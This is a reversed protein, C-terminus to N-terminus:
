WKGAICDGYGNCDAIECQDSPLSCEIGQWGRDCICKGNEYKGHNNCLIPCM